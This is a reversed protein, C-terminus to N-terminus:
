CGSRGPEQVRIHPPENTLTQGSIATFSRCGNDDKGNWRVLTGNPQDLFTKLFHLSIVEGDLTITENFTDVSFKM